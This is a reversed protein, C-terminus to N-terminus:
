WRAAIQAFSDGKTGIYSNISRIYATPEVGRYAKVAAYASFGRKNKLYGLYGAAMKINTTGNYAMSHNYTGLHLVNEYVYKGSGALFQGYGRATSSSSTANEDGGSETMIIGFLLDPDIGEKKMLEEGTAIQEYTLDTRKGAKDYIAYEYKNYLEKRKTFKKLDSNLSKNEKKLKANSNDLTEVTKKMGVLSEKMVTNQFAMTNVQDNLSAIDSNVNELQKNLKENETSLSDVQDILANNHNNVRTLQIALTIVVALLIGAAIIAAKAITEYTNAIEKYRRMSRTRASVPKMTTTTISEM